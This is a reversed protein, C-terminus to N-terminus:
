NKASSAVQFVKGREPLSQVVDLIGSRLEAGETGLQGAVPIDPQQVAACGGTALAKGGGDGHLAPSLDGGAIDM